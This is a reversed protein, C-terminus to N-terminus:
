ELALFRRTIRGNVVNFPAFSQSTSCGRQIRPSAM